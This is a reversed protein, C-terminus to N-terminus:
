QILLELRRPLVVLLQQALDLLALASPAGEPRRGLGLAVLCPGSGPSLGDILDRRISALAALDSGLACEPGQALDLHIPSLAALNSGFVFDPELGLYSDRRPNLTFRADAGAGVGLGRRAACALAASPRGTMPDVGLCLAGPSLRRLTSDPGRRM